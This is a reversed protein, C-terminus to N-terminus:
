AALQLAAKLAMLFAPYFAFYAVLQLAKVALVAQAAQAAQAAKVTQAVQAIQEFGLPKVVLLGCPGSLSNLVSPPFFFYKLKKRVPLDKDSARRKVSCPLVHQTCFNNQIDSVIETCLM